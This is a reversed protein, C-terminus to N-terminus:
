DVDYNLSFFSSDDFFQKKLNHFDEYIWCFFFAINSFKNKGADRATLARRTVEKETWQNWHTFLHNNNLAL